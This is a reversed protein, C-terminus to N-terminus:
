FLYELGAWFQRGMEYENHSSGAHAKEDFVNYIELNLLLDQKKFFANQWTIKWDFLVVDSQKVEDYVALAEYIEEGTLPDIRRQGEPIAKEEGTDELNRYGSRYKTFNTFTFGLPLEAIYTLNAVYPRNYDNRPLESKYIIKGDHWVRDELEDDELAADYDENSTTSEQYTANISLFHKDWMREWSIRYSEHRSSGNNNMTYYRLGDPQVAGYERAFEDKGKREVYKVSLRGGLLSQDLGIAAEDSYPTELESFQAVNVGQFSDPEWETPRNHYSTRTESRFPKRAERLKYTLLTRGYYRNLGATLVTRDDGFVDLTAAFRSAFTLNRMYDDYSIRIGPRLGLRKLHILDDLHISYQNISASTSSAEYVNRYTFFQEREVCDFSDGDCIIDPTLKAQKYVYTTERRDYAGRIREYDLGVNFQHTVSGTFFVDFAFNGEFNVGTQRKEITGFGGEGSFDSDALRGWDKTDTTAWLRWHQPAHRTNESARFAGVLQLEGADFFHRYDAGIAYGGEEIDFDSNKADQIFYEGRYPTYTMFLDLYDDDSIDHVYKLFYNELRRTQQKSQGLHYLPIESYLIRCSTLLGANRSVPINLDVGAHHKEFKPQKQYSKSHEFDYEEEEDVHFRTWSDRTTRYFIKGGFAPGPNKTKVDVVGGTFGGYRAPINCDYVTIEGVLDSDVYVEQAHGPVDNVYNPNDAVPDLLSNNSVGDITFNNQYVRGGSISVSPPLIEGGTYSTNHTDSLQVDPLVELIENISGNGRPLKQIVDGKITSKGTAKSELTGIVTVPALVPVEAESPFPMALLCAGVILAPVVHKKITM